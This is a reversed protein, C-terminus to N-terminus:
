QLFSLTQLSTTINDNAKRIYFHDILRGRIHTARNVLQKFGENELWQTVKNRRTDIYCLNLYGCVVTTRFQSILSQLHDILNSLNGNSSRYLTIVDLNDTGMKTLQMNDETIDTVHHFLHEKFYVALGKGPGVSNFHRAYSSITPGNEDTLWTESLTLIDSEMLTFDCEIDERHNLLNMCNLHAIKVQGQEQKKWPIPNLNDCKENMRKLERLAKQNPRIKEDKFAGVIYIQEISQPRSLMVYAQSDEWVSALDLAVKLPNPISQGQIKHATIAQALKIPFQILSPNGTRKKSKRTLQYTVQVKEIITCNPFNHLLHSNSERNKVGANQNAFEVILKVIDGNNNRITGRLIGLQGNTLSDSTDVNHILIIKCGIKLELKDMFSTRGIAGDKQSVYPKYDKKTPLFNRAKIIIKEGDLENVYYTNIKSCEKRTCVIFLSASKLDPHNRPRIREKLKKMDDETQEGVRIRNLMKAFTKFNGQRHNGELNIVRMMHWRSELKYAANYCPNKPREFLYRGLVPCLQLMDGFLLISVGGFPVGVMEKIEQLRLDVQYLMDVKVMSAEDIILLKLKGLVKKKEARVKDSMSYHTNGFDLGFATHLTMGEILSAATGTFATKLVYPQDLSDGSQQLIHQVCESVTKIVYTKGSGATGHVMYLIPRPAPNTEKRAKVVDKAYKVAKDVVERQWRDLNRISRKLEGIEPINIRSYIHSAKESNPEETNVNETNIHAYEPHLEAMLDECEAKEHENAADLNVATEELDLKRAAEEVYYRAEEVSELYEMVKGKVLKIREQNEMYIDELSEPIDPQFDSEEDRFPIYLM